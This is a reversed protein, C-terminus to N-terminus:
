ELEISKRCISLIKIKRIVDKLWLKISSIAIVFTLKHQNLLRPISQLFIIDTYAIESSDGSM